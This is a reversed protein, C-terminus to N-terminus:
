IKRWEKRIRKQLKFVEKDCFRCVWISGGGCGVLIRKSIKKCVPCEMVLPLKGDGGIWEKM